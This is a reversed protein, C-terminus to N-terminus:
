SSSQAKPKYLAVTKLSKFADHILARFRDCVNGSFNNTDFGYVVSVLKNNNGPAFDVGGFFELLGNNNDSSEVMINLMKLGALDPMRRALMIAETLLVPLNITLMSVQPWDVQSVNTLESDFVVSAEKALRPIQLLANALDISDVVSDMESYKAFVAKVKHTLGFDHFDFCIGDLMNIVLVKLVMPSMAALLSCTHPCLGLQLAQLKPADLTCLFRNSPGVWMRANAESPVLAVDIFMYELCPFVIHNRNANCGFARWDFSEDISSLELRRISKTNIVPTHYFGPSWWLNLRTLSESLGPLAGLAFSNAELASLQPGYVRALMTEVALCIPENISAQCTLEAINPLLYRFEDAVVKVRDLSLTVSTDQATHKGAQSISVYLYSVHQLVYAAETLKMLVSNLCALPNSHKIWINLARPHCHHPLLDLNTKLRLEHFMAVKNNQCENPTCDVSVRKFAM